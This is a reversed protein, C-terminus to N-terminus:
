AIEGDARDAFRRRLGRPRCAEPADLRRLAVRVPQRLHDEVPEHGARELAEATAAAGPQPRVVLVRLAM